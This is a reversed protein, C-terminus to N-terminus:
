ISKEKVQILTNYLKNISMKSPNLEMFEEVLCFQLFKAILEVDFWKNSDQWGLGFIQGFTAGFYDFKKGIQNNLFKQVKNIIFTNNVEIDIFDWDNKDYVKSIIHVGNKHNIAYIKSNVIIEVRSYKGFLLRIKDKIDDSKKYFAVRITRM